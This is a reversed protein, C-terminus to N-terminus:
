ATLSVPDSLVDLRDLLGAVELVRATTRSPALLVFSGGKAALRGAADVLVALGTSDIFSVAALDVAVHLNGQEAILDDLRRRLQPAALADLEGTVEVVVHIRVRRFRLSFEPIVISM